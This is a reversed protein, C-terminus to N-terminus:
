IIIGDLIFLLDDCFKVTKVNVDTKSLIQNLNLPESHNEAYPLFQPCYPIYSIPTKSMTGFVRLENKGDSRSGFIAIRQQSIDLCKIHNWENNDVIIPNLIKVTNSPTLDFHGWLMLYDKDKITCVACSTNGTAHVSKVNFDKLIEGAESDYLDGNRGLIGAGWTFVQGKITKAITHYDGLAIENFIHNDILLQEPEEIVDSDDDASSFASFISAPKSPLYGSQGYFNCGWIYLHGNSDIATSNSVGAAISKIQPLKIKSPISYNTTKGLKSLSFSPRGWSLTSLRSKM